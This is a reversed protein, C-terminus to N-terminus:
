IVEIKDLEITHYGSLNSSGYEGINLVVVPYKSDLATEFRERIISCVGNQSDSVLILGGCNGKCKEVAVSVLNDLEIKQKRMLIFM